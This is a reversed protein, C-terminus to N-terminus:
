APPNMAKRMEAIVEDPFPLPGCAGSKTFVVEGDALVDYVGGHGKIMKVEADKFEQRIRAARAAAANVFCLETCYVIEFKM